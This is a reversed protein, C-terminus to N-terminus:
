RADQEVGTTALIISLCTTMAKVMPGKEVDIWEDLSHARGGKDPGMRGITLAPIGLSMAMNSDTSSNRYAVKYGGAEIAAAATQVFPSDVATTGAPRDGILKAEVTIKGEKTSRAFNEGDAAEQVVKLLRDEVRKLEVLSESRMDVDMWASVPISNVSTGGGILGISYTTKPSAPVQVRSFESAAQGLAFMPNVLGFAGFSHGGPGKFTIHYRKSGVGANTISDVGGSEVSFFSKIRDKYQGKTFLYRVGRLDGPGEEGVTGVFLIDDRTKIHAANMARIFGLLVSLSMTDDGIGPGRLRTGDRKVKVDTGAPFVTDMHASVVVFKGDGRAGKRIGLVNGEEDIKVDALGAERFMKEYAQARVAEKLPPSPIEALKIGDEVIRGHENDLTAAATKFAPSALLRAVEAAATSTQAAACPTGFAAGLALALASLRAAVQM